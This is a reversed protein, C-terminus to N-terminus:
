DINLALKSAKSIKKKCFQKELHFSRERLKEEVIEGNFKL